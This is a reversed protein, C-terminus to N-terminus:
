GCISAINCFIRSTLSLYPFNNDTIKLNDSTKLAFTLLDEESDETYAVLKWNQLAATAHSQKDVRNIGVLRQDEDHDDVVGEKQSLSSIWATQWTVSSRLPQKRAHNRSWIVRLPWHCQVRCGCMKRIVTILLIIIIDTPTLVVYAIYPITKAVFLVSM